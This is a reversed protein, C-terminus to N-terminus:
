LLNRYNKATVVTEANANWSEFVAVYIHRKLPHRSLHEGANEFKDKLDLIIGTVRIQCEVAM